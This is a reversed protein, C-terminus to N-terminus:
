PEGGLLRDRAKKVRGYEEATGGHDPHAEKVRERFSDRIESEGADRPVGLVDHDAAAAAVVDGDDGSPLQAAAFNAAGTVVPRDGRLRTENIWLYVTRVNDRLRPSSDCGVAFQEGGDTWRLSFGPDDPNANHKPLGNGFTYAGGSGTSARWEDPDLRDMETALDDTTQGLTAQYSNNREREHSPTREFGAPWDLTV